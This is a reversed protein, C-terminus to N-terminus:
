MIKRARVFSIVIIIIGIGYGILSKRFYHDSVDYIVTETNDEKLTIKTYKSSFVKFLGTDNEATYTKGDVTKEKTNIYDTLRRNNEATETVLVVDVVENQDVSVMYNGRFFHININEDACEVLVNGYATLSYGCLFETKDYVCIYKTNDYDSHTVVLLGDETVDFYDIADKQPEENLLTINIASLFDTKDKDAIPETQFASVAAFANTCFCLSLVFIICFIGYKTKNM